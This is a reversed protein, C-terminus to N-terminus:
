EEDIRNKEEIARVNMTAVAWKLLAAAVIDGKSELSPVVVSQIRKEEVPPLDSWYKFITSNIQDYDAIMKAENQVTDNKM